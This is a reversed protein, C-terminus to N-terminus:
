PRGEYGQVVARKHSRAKISEPHPLGNKHRQFLDSTWVETANVNCELRTLVVSIESLLGPRDPGILEVVTHNSFTLGVSHRLLNTSSQERKTRYGLSQLV